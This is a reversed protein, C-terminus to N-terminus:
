RAGRQQNWRGNGLFEGPERKVGLFRRLACRGVRKETPM